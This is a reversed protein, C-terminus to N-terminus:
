AQGGVRVTALSSVEIPLGDGAERESSGVDQDEGKM